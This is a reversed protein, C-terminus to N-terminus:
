PHDDVVVLDGTTQGRGIDGGFAEYTSEEVGNGREFSVKDLKVVDTAVNDEGVVLVEVVADVLGEGAVIVPEAM